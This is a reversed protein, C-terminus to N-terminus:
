NIFTLLLESKSHSTISYSNTDATIFCSHGQGITICLDKDRIVVEGEKVFYHHFSDNNQMECTSNKDFIIRDFSYHPSRFCEERTVKNNIHVQKPHVFHTQPDNAEKSRDIYKFYDEIDVKRTLGDNSFKGKDFTRISSVPDMVDYCLEYLYNGSDKPNTSQEWSHHVGGESLDVLTDKPVTLVNVYQWPDVEEVLKKAKEKAQELTLEKNLVMKSLIGTKKFITECANKYDDWNAENKVGLTIHGKEFFYWSEPKAVWKDSKQNQKIHLQFSNGKAQTYKNLIPLQAGFKAYAKKGIVHIPNNQILYSLAVLLKRDGEYDFRDPEMSWGLEGTFSPDHSSSIDNRLMSGSYLEYSQGIKLNEFPKKHLWQKTQLILEGGWTPQEIIKPVVFYLM